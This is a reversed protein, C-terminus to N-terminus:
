NKGIKKKTKNVSIFNEGLFVSEVGEIELLEVILSNKTNTKKDFEMPGVLSVKKEPLFKLSDPNPTIETQIFM